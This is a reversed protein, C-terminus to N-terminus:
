GRGKAAVMRDHTRKRHCNACVLDCKAIEEQIRKESGGSARLSSVNALKEAPNRHDFDMIWTPYKVGCDACPVDRLKDVMVKSRAKKIKRKEAQRRQREDQGVKPILGSRYARGYERQCERCYGYPLNKPAKKCRPCAGPTAVEARELVRQRKEDRIKQLAAERVQRAQSRSERHAVAEVITGDPKLIQGKYYARDYARQCNRCWVRKPPRPNKQCRPCVGPALTSTM